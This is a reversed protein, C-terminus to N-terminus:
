TTNVGDRGIVLISEHITQQRVVYTWHGRGKASAPIQTSFQQSNSPIISPDITYELHNM